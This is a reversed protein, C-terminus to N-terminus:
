GISHQSAALPLNVSTGRPHLSGARPGQSDLSALLSNGATTERTRGEIDRSSWDQQHFCFVALIIVFHGRGVQLTSACGKALRYLIGRTTTAMNHTLIYSTMYSAKSFVESSQSRSYKEGLRIIRGCPRPRLFIEGSFLCCTELFKM